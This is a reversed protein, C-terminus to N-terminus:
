LQSDSGSGHGECVSLLEGFRSSSITDRKILIISKTGNKQCEVVEPDSTIGGHVIVRRYTSSTLPVCVAQYEKVM